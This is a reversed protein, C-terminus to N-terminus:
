SQNITSLLSLCSITKVPQLHNQIVSVLKISTCANVPSQGHWVHTTIICSLVDFFQRSYARDQLGFYYSSYTVEYEADETTYSSDIRMAMCAQFHYSSAWVVCLPMCLSILLSHAMSRIIQSEPYLSYQLTWKWTGFWLVAVASWAALLQEEM